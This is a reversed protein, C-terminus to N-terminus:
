YNDKDRGNSNKRSRRGLWVGSSPKTPRARVQDSTTYTTYLSFLAANACLYDNLRSTFYEAKSRYYDKLYKHETFDVPQSFESNNKGVSKNRFKYLLPVQIEMRVWMLLADAIYDDVLNLDYGALTNAIIKATLDNYLPTGIAKEIYEKQCYFITPLILKMDVNDDIESNEKVYKESILLARNQAM